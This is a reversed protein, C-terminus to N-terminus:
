YDHHERVGTITEKKQENIVIFRFKPAFNCIFDYFTIYINCNKANKRANNSLFDYIQVIILSFRPIFAGFVMYNM